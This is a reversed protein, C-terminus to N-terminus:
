LLSFNVWSRPWSPTKRVRAQQVPGLRKKTPKKTTVAAAAAAAGPTPQGRIGDNVSASAAARRKLAQRYAVLWSTRRAAFDKKSEGYAKAKGHAAFAAAASPEGSELADVMGPLSAKSGGHRDNKDRGTVPKHRRRDVVLKRLPADRTSRRPPAGGADQQQWARAARAM